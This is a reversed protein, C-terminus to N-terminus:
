SAASFLVRALAAATESEAAYGCAIFVVQCDDASKGTWRVLEDRKGTRQWLYCINSDDGTFRLLGKARLVTSPLQARFRDFAVRDIPESCTYSHSNFSKSTFSTSAANNGTANHSASGSSVGNDGTIATVRVDDFNQLESSDEESVTTNARVFSNANSAAPAHEEVSPLAHGFLLGTPVEANSCHMVPAHHNLDALLDSARTLQQADVTEVKNLLLLSACTLQSRVVAEIQPDVVRDTVEAADALVIIGEPYLLPDLRAFDMIKAPEAVGSTEVVIHDFREIQKMLLLMTKVFGDALSCCICGNSLAMTQGDHSAVLQEDINIRGFDNVLLAYRVGDSNALIHNVLTTKGAGLFGGIVTFPVPETM